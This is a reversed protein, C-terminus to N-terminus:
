LELWSGAAAERLRDRLSARCMELKDLAESSAPSLGTFQGVPEGPNDIQKRLARVAGAQAKVFDLFIQLALEDLTLKLTVHAHAEAM